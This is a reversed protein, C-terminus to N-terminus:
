PRADYSTTAEHRQAKVSADTGEPSENMESDLGECVCVNGQGLGVGCM